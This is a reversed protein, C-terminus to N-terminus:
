LSCTWPKGDMELRSSAPNPLNELTYSMVHTCAKSGQMPDKSQPSCSLQLSAPVPRLIPQFFTFRLAAEFCCSLAVWYNKPPQPPGEAECCSGILWLNKELADLPSEFCSLSLAPLQLRQSLEPKEQVQRAAELSQGM